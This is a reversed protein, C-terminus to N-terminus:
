FPQIDNKNTYDIYNIELEVGFHTLQTFPAFNGTTNEYYVKVRFKNQLKDFDLFDSIYSDNFNFNFRVTSGITDQVIPFCGHYKETNSGGTTESHKFDPFYVFGDRTTTADVVYDVAVQLLKIYRVNKWNVLLDVYFDEPNDGSQKKQNDSIWLKQKRLIRKEPSKYNQDFLNQDNFQLPVGPRMPQPVQYADNYDQFNLQGDEQCQTTDSKYHQDLHQNYNLKNLQHFQSNSIHHPAPDM